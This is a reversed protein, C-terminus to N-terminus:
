NGTLRSLAAMELIMTGSCATCTDVQDKLHKLMGRKLNVRPHPLGSTTNFAPLLRDALDVTMKLLEDNYWKFHGEDKQQLQKALVHASILGGVMRINTEFVSVVLDSDFRVTEIVKKVSDEFVDLEGIVVLTDLADILTVSFNGLADDVDGRSPTKGRIRPACAIPMIEDHPFAHEM